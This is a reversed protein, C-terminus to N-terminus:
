GEITVGACGAGIISVSNQLDQGTNQFTVALIIAAALAAALISSLVYFWKRNM